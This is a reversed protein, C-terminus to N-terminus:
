DEVAAAVAAGDPVFDLDRGAGFAREVGEGIALDREGHDGCVMAVVAASSCAGDKRGPDAYGRAHHRTLELGYIGTM